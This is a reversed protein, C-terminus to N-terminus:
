TRTSRTPRRRPPSRPASTRSRHPRPGRSRRSRRGASSDDLRRPTRRPRGARVFAGALAGFRADVTAQTATALMAVIEAVTHLEGSGIEVVEGDVGPTDAATAFADAVDDVYVWDIPRGGSSLVPSEDRLFCRTVYPVLKIEDRQGPGYIMSPRLVVTSLGYLSSFMRAYATAGAKAAAYPSRPPDDGAPEEYSGALVVRRGGTSTCRPAREGCRRPQRVPDPPRQGARSSRERPERPPLRRVAAGGRVPGARARRAHPRVGALAGRRRSAAHREEDHLRDPLRRGPHTTRAALRPVRDRGHRPDHGDRRGSSCTTRRSGIPRWASTRSACAPASPSRSSARAHRRVPEAGM